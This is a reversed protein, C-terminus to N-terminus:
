LLCNLISFLMSYFDFGTDRKQSKDSSEKRRESHLRKLSYLELVKKERRGEKRRKKKGKREGEKGGKKRKHKCLFL